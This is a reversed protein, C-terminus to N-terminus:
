FSQNMIDSVGPVYPMNGRLDPNNLVSGIAHNLLGEQPWIGVMVLLPLLVHWGLVLWAFWYISQGSVHIYAPYDYWRLGPRRGFRNEGLVPAPILMPALQMAVTGVAAVGLIGNVLHDVFWAGLWIGAYWWGGYGLDHLRYVYARISAIFTLVMVPLLPLFCLGGLFWFLTVGTLLGLWILLLGGVLPVGMAVLGFTALYGLYALYGARGLRQGDALFADIGCRMDSWRWLKTTDFLPGTPGDGPLNEPAPVFDAPSSTFDEPPM